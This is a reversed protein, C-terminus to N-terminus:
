NLTKPGANAPPSADQRGREFVQVRKASFSGSLSTAGGCPDQFFNGSVTVPNGDEFFGSYASEGGVCPNVAKFGGDGTIDGKWEKGDSDMFTAGGGRVIITLPSTQQPEGVGAGISESGEYRGNFRQADPGGADSDGGNPCGSGTLCILAFPLLMLQKIKTM